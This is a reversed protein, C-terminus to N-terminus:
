GIVCRLFDYVHARPGRVIIESQNTRQDVEIMNEIRLARAPM